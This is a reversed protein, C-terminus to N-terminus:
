NRCYEIRYQEVQTAEGEIYRDCRVETLGLDIFQELEADSLAWPPGEPVTNDERHRTVVLLTGNKAVM